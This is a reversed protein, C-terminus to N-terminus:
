MNWCACLVHLAPLKGRIELEWGGGSGWQWVANAGRDWVEVTPLIYFLGRSCVRTPWEGEKWATEWWPATHWVGDKSPTFAEGERERHLGRVKSGLWLSYCLPATVSPCLQSSKTHALSMCVEWALTPILNDKDLMSVLYANLQLIFWM